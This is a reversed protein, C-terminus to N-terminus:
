GSPNLARKQKMRQVIIEHGEVIVGILFFFAIVSFVGIVTEPEPGPLGFYRLLCAYGGSFGGIIIIVCTIKWLTTAKHRLYYLLLTLLAGSVLLIIGDVLCEM